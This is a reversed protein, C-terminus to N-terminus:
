ARAIAPSDARQSLTSFFALTLAGSSQLIQLVELGRALANISKVQM